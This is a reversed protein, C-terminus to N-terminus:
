MRRRPSLTTSRRLVLTTNVIEPNRLSETRECEVSDLLAGFAADAIESQSMRVTTLPPIVFHALQIDDFGVVSLKEPVHNIARM